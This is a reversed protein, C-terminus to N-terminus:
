ETETEVNRNVAVLAIFILIIGIVSDITVGENYVIFGVITAAIPEVYTIISAKGAEIKKLSYNFLMFPLLTVFIGTGVILLLINMDSFTLDLASPLDCFPMLGLCCILSSYFLVTPVSNGKDYAVKSGVTYIAFCVGSLAGLLIGILDMEGPATLVGTCLVCGIFAAVVAMIKTRTLKEKLIPVSLLIVVFPAVYQLVAALSLSILEMSTFYFVSNLISGVVGLILFIGFGKLDIRFMGRDKYLIFVFLIVTVIIYRMCTMQMPSVGMEDLGRVFLGLLGWIIGASLAALVGLHEGSREM